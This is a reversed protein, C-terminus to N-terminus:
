SDSRNKACSTNQLYLKWCAWHSLTIKKESLLEITCIKEPKREDVIEKVSRSLANSVILSDKTIAPPEHRSMCVNLWWKKAWRRDCMTYLYIMAVKSFGSAINSSVGYTIANTTGDNFWSSSLRESLDNYPGDETHKSLKSILLLYLDKWRYGNRKKQKSRYSEHWESRARWAKVPNRPRDCRYKHTHAELEMNKSASLRESTTLPFFM